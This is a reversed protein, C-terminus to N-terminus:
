AQGDAVQGKIEANITKFTSEAPVISINQFFTGVQGSPREVDGTAVGIKTYTGILQHLQKFGEGKMAMTARIKKELDVAVMNMTEKFHADSGEKIRVADTTMAKASLRSYKETPRIVSLYYKWDEESMIAIDYFVSQYLDLAFNQWQQSSLEELARQHDTRSGRSTLITELINKARGDGIFAFLNDLWKPHEYPVAAGIVNLMMEYAGLQKKNPAGLKKALPRLEKPVRSIFRERLKKYYNLGFRTTALNRQHIESIAEKAPTTLFKLCLFRHFPLIRATDKGTGGFSAVHNRACRLVFDDRPQIDFLHRGHKEVEKAKLLHQVKVFTTPSIKYKDCILAQSIM